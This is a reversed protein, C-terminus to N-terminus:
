TAEIQDELQLLDIPFSPLEPPVEHPALVPCHIENRAIFNRFRRRVDPAAIISTQYAGMRHQEELGRLQDLIRDAVESELFISDANFDGLSHQMEAVGRRIANEISPDLLILGLVGVKGAISHCLQRKMAARLCEALIIATPEETNSIWYHLASVVLTAPRLPVGDEVLYRFMKLMVPKEMEKEISAMTAPDAAKFAEILSDLVDNSFLIGINHDYTKYAILGIVEELTLTEINLDAIDKLMQDPLWFGSVDKVKFTELESDPLLAIVAEYDTSSLLTHQALVNFTVLPVEDLNITVALGETGSRDSKIAPRPFRVGRRVFLEWFRSRLVDSLVQDDIHSEVDASLLVEFRDSTKLSEPDESPPLKTETQEKTRETEDADEKTRLARRLVLSGTLLIASIGGFVIIPFGPIIGVAFIIGAAAAPVRPDSILEGIIDAGLDSSQAKSVRTVLVGACLSMLLAPFQAVLGDGVTLLAFIGAAEGLSMQHLTTGVIIGGILNICIIILGAIADGKVFKMAGDMAGFFQSDKDLMARQAVGEEATLNGNRVEADITMQKGPLADLAFRAGVEAVREAGKTIVLFQVVTIILFIIMGIGVSGSVVFEGFTSVIAGADAESLILRTTGISLALRFATAILIVTPFTSFDSPRKLYVAVMLMTIALSINIALLVDILWSSLPVAMLTLTMVLLGILLLDKRM